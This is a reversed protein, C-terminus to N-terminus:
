VPEEVKKERLLYITSGVITAALIALAAAVAPNRV